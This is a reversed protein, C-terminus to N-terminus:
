QASSVINLAPDHMSVTEGLEYINEFGYGYLNIFTPINLALEARKLPFPATNEAFNNNCYILIPRSKDGILKDLKEQTFDSFNLHVAGEVHGQDFAFKSRSDLIIVDDKAALETFKQKSVLRSERYAMVEESLNLFAGYDVISPQPAADNFAQQSTQAIGTQSIILLGIIISFMIRTM